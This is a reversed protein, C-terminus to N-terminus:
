KMGICAHLTNGIGELDGYLSPSPMRISSIKDMEDNGLGLDIKIAYFIYM